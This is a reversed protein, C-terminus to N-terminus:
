NGSSGRLSGRSSTPTFRYGSPRSTNALGRQVAQQIWWVAYTSFKYGRRWDYKSVAHILGLMGEQILDVFPLGKDRYRKAVSVVLRVNSLIMRERAETDGREVRRALEVEERASLVRHGAATRM